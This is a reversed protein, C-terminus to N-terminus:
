LKAVRCHQHSAGCSSASRNEACHSRGAGRSSWAIALPRPSANGQAAVFIRRGAESSRVPGSNDASVYGTLDARGHAGRRERRRRAGGGDAQNEDKEGRREGKAEDRDEGGAEAVVFGIDDRDRARRGEGVEIMRRQVLPDQGGPRGGEALPARRAQRKEAEVQQRTEGQKEEGAPQERGRRRPPGHEGEVRAGVEEDIGVAVDQRVRRQQSERREAHQRRRLDQVPRRPPFRREPQAGPQRQSEAPRLLYEAM